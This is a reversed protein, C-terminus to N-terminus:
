ALSDRGGGFEEGVGYGVTEVPLWKTGVGLSLFRKCHRSVSKTTVGPFADPHLPCPNQEGDQPAGSLGVLSFSRSCIDTTSLLLISSHGPGATEWRSEM